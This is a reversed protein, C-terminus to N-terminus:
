VSVLGCAGDALLFRGHVQSRRMIEPGNEPGCHGDDDERLQAAEGPCARQCGPIALWPHYERSCHDPGCHRHADTDIRALEDVMMHGFADRAPGGPGEEEDEASQDERAAQVASSSDSTDM